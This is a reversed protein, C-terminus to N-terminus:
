CFRRKIYKEINKIQIVQEIPLEYKKAFEFDREDHAPVSMVAGTGYGALIFDAAYIPIEKKTAPNIAYIGEIKVGSKQKIDTREM